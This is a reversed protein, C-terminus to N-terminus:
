WWGNECSGNVGRLCQASTLHTVHPSPRHNSSHLRCRPPAAARVASNSSPPQDPSLALHQTGIRHSAIRHTVVCSEGEELFDANGGVNFFFALMTLVTVQRGVLQAVLVENAMVHPFIRQITDHLVQFRFTGRTAVVVSEDASIVDVSKLSLNLYRVFTSYIQLQQAMVEPGYLENGVDVYADM